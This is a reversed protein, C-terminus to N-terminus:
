IVRDPHVWYLYFSAHKKCPRYKEFCHEKSIQRHAKLVMVNQVIRVKVGKTKACNFSKYIRALINKPFQCFTYKRM